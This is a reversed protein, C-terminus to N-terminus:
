VFDYPLYVIWKGDKKGNKTSVILDTTQPRYEFAGQFHLQNMSSVVDARVMQVREKEADSGFRMVQGFTRGEILPMFLLHGVRGYLPISRLSYYEPVLAKTRVARQHTLLASRVLRFDFGQSLLGKTDKVAISRGDFEFTRVSHRGNVMPLSDFFRHLDQESWGSFHAM